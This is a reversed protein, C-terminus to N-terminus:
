TLLRDPPELGGAKDFDRVFSIGIRRAQDDRPDLDRVVALALEGPM